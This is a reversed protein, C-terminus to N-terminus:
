VNNAPTYIPVAGITPKCYGKFNFICMGRQVAIRSKPIKGCTCKSVHMNKVATTNTVTSSNM